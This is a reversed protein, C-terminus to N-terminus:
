IELRSMSFLMKFTVGLCFDCPNLNPPRPPWFIPCHRSILRNNGFFKKLPQMVPKTIHPLAGEQMFIIGDLSIREQFTLIIQNRLLDEYQKGNMTSTAPDVLGMVKFFFFFIARGYAIGDVWVVCNGKVFAKSSVSNRISKRKGM